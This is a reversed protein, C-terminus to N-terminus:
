IKVEAKVIHAGTGTASADPIAPQTQAFFGTHTGLAFRLARLNAGREVPEQAIHAAELNRKGIGVINIAQARM